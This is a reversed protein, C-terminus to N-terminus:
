RSRSERVGNALISHRVCYVLDPCEASTDRANDPTLLFLLFLLFLLPLVLFFRILGLRTKYVCKVGHVLQYQALATM